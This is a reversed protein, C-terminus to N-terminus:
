RSAWSSLSRRWWIACGGPLSAGAMSSAAATDIRELLAAMVEPMVRVAAREPRVRKGASEPNILRGAGLIGKLFQTVLERHQREELSRGHVELTSSVLAGIAAALEGRPRVCAEAPDFTRAVLPQVLARATALDTAALGRLPLPPVGPVLRASANFASESRRGFGSM